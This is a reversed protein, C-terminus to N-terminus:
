SKPSLLCSLSTEAEVYSVTLDNTNEQNIWNAARGATGVCQKGIFNRYTVSACGM